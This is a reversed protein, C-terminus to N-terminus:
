TKLNTKCADAFTFLKALLFKVNEYFQTRQVKTEFKRAKKILRTNFLIVIIHDCSDM